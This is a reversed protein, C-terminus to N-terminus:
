QGYRVGERRFDVMELEIMDLQASIALGSKRFGSEIMM